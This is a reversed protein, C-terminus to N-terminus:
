QFGEVSMLGPSRLAVVQFLTGMADEAVLRELQRNIRESAGPDGAALRRARHEIGLRRLFDGQGTPGDVGLGADSAHRCVARFDVHATLDHQGPASLPHTRTHRYVAQLTDGRGDGGYDILLAAGGRGHLAVALRDIWGKLSPAVEFIGDSGQAGPPVTDLPALGFALEGAPDLGVMRMAWRGDVCVYQDIPMCDLFENALVILPTDGRIDLEERWTVPVDCLARAQAARLVPSAEILTVSVASRFAPDIAAVRWVDRMLLGRGPGFEAIEIAPPRGMRHWVDICWAGIMEGFMQSIEPATIFDGDEGLTVSRAYYGDLPDLLARAMFRSIPIPGELAIEAKLRRALPPDRRM